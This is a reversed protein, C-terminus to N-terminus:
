PQTDWDWEGDDYYLHLDSLYVCYTGNQAEYDERTIGRHVKWALELKCNGDGSCRQIIGTTRELLLIAEESDSVGEYYPASQDSGPIRLLQFQLNEETVGAAKGAESRLINQRLAEYVRPCAQVWPELPVTEYGVTEGLWQLLEETTKQGFVFRDQYRARLKERRKEITHEDHNDIHSFWIENM